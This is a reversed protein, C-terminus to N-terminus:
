YLHHAIGDGYRGTAEMCVHPFSLSEQTLWQSLRQWGTPTNSFIQHVSTNENLIVIDLKDKSVDIGAYQTM